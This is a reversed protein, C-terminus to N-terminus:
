PLPQDKLQASIRRVSGELRAITSVFGAETASETNGSFRVMGLQKKNGALEREVEGLQMKLMAANIAIKRHTLTDTVRTTHQRIFYLAVMRGAAAPVVVLVLIVWTRTIDSFM